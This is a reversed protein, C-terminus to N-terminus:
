HDEFLLGQGVALAVLAAHLGLVARDVDGIRRQVQFGGLRCQTNGVGVQEVFFLVFRGKLQQALLVRQGVTVPM